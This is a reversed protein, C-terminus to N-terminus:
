VLATQYGDIAAIIQDNTAFKFAELGAEDAYQRELDELMAVEDTTILYSTRKGWWDMAPRARGVLSM